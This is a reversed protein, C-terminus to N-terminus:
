AFRVASAVLRPGLDVRKGHRSTRIAGQWPSNGDTENGLVLAFSDDWETLLGGEDPDLDGSFEGNVFIQRGTTPSYNVM